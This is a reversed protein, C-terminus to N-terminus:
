QYTGVITNGFAFSDPELQTRHQSTTNTYPDDSIPTAIVGAASITAGILVCGVAAAAILFRGTGRAGRVGLTARRTQPRCTLTRATPEPRAPRAGASPRRRRSLALRCRSG